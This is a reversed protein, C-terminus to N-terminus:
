EPLWDENLITDLSYPQDEPFTSLPLATEDIALRRARQYETALGEALYTKLSPSTTLLREIEQRANRISVKWSGSRKDPQYQWKLLHLLLRKLQSRIAHKQSIGLGELEEIVNEPDLIVFNGARLAAIQEGLWLNFDTEYLAKITQITEAKTSM